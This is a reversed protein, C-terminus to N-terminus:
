LISILVKVIIFSIIIFLVLRIYREDKRSFSFNSQKRYTNMIKQNLRDGVEECRQEERNLFQTRHLRKDVRSFNFRADKLLTPKNTYSLMSATKLAHIVLKIADKKPRWRSIPKLRGNKQPILQLNRISLDKFNCEEYLIGVIGIGTEKFRKKALPIETNRIFSSGIFSKTLVCVFLDCDEINEIIQRRWEQSPLLHYDWWIELKFKVKNRIFTKSRLEKEVLAKVLKFDNKAYSIFVKIVEM